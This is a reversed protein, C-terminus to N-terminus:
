SSSTIGLILFSTIEDIYYLIALEVYIYATAHVGVFARATDRMICVRRWQVGM